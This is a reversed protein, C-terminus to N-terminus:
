RLAPSVKVHISKTDAFAVIEDMVNEPPYDFDPPWSEWLVTSEKPLGILANKLETAGCSANRKPFWSHIFKNSEARTM